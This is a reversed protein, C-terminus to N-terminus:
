PESKVKIGNPLPTLAIMNHGDDNVYAHSKDGCAIVPVFTTTGDNLKQIQLRPRKRIRSIYRKKRDEESEFKCHSSSVHNAFKQSTEFIKNCKSCPYPGYKKHPLSHIRGDNINENRKHLDLHSSAAVYTNMTMMMNNNKNNNIIIDDNMNINISSSSSSTSTHLHGFQTELIEMAKLIGPAHSGFNNTGVSSSSDYDFSSHTYIKLTTNYGHMWQFLRNNNM